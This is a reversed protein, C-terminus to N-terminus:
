LRGGFNYFAKRFLTSFCLSETQCCCIWGYVNTVSVCGVLNM